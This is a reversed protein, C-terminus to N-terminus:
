APGAAVPPRPGGLVKELAARLQTVHFPKQVCPNALGALFAAATETFAGGTIFVVRRALDPQRAALRQHLEPGSLQPMMVDCFIADYREGAEIWRLAEEAAGTTAVEHEAGLMRAVVKAVMPDDDVVLLRLREGGTGATERAEVARGSGSPGPAPGGPAAAEEEPPAPPLLVRLASGKGVASEVEIRGGAGTVIGHAIALGLGTGVGRTKTTFFPEFVRRQVEPPMGSGTDRVEVRAWGNGDTGAEVTICNEAAHGEPIAQAANVLLNLFVQGLEHSAAAVRPTRGIRMELRARHRIENSALRVAAEIEEGVDVPLRPGAPPRSFARLGRVVDRVRAAGDEADALAERVGPEVGAAALRPVAFELNALVYSLPNNIEHAVGAALTGLSALRESRELQAALRRRATVDSVVGTVRHARGDPGRRSGRGRVLVWRPEARVGVLTRYELELVETEGRLHAEVRARVEALDDPHVLRVLLADVDGTVGDSRRGTGPGWVREFTLRGADLDWDWLFHTGALALRFLNRSERLEAEARTRARDGRWWLGLIVSGAVLLLSALGAIIWLSRRGAADIEAIDIKTVLRWEGEGVPRISALVAHGLADVGEVLGLRGAAAMAAPLRAASRPVRIARGEAAHAGASSFILAGDPVPQVLGSTASTRPIPWAQIAADFIEEMPARVALVATQGGLGRVAIAAQLIPRDRGAQAALETARGAPSAAAARALSPGFPEDPEGPRIWELLPRGDPALLSVRLYGYHGGLNELIEQVHGRLQPEMPGQGLGAVARGVSPYGAALGANRLQGDTWAGIVAVKLAGVAELERAVRRRADQRASRDLLVVATVLGLAVLLFSALPLARSTRASGRDGM